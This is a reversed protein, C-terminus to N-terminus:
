GDRGEGGRVNFWKDRMRQSITRMMASVGEVTLNMMFMSTWCPSCVEEDRSSTGSVMPSSVIRGRRCKPRTSVGPRFSQDFFAFDTASFPDVFLWTNLLFGDIGNQFVEQLSCTGRSECGLGDKVEVFNYLEQKLMGKRGEFTVTWPIGLLPIEDVRIEVAIISLIPGIFSMRQAVHQPAPLSVRHSCTGLNSIDRKDYRQYGRERRGGDKWRRWSEM